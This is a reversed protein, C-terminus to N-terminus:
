KREYQRMFRIAHELDMRVSEYNRIRRITEYTNKDWINRDLMADRARRLTELREVMGVLQREYDAIMERYASM